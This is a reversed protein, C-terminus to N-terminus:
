FFFRIGLRIARPAVLSYVQHGDSSPYESLDEYWDYETRDGWNTITDSNFVNFIDIMLGLRYKEKFTFTKELRLDLDTVDPLRRSGAPETFITERGQDLRFRARREYTRGTRHSFYANFHIDWPLIYSGQLKVFHTPDNYAHGFRNIWFNPNWTQGGWGIDDGWGNGITGTCESYVYSAILQWRHSFRKTFLVEIGWYDRYADDAIWPDGKKINALVYQREGVNTQNFVDIPAGTFPDEVAIQEYQGLIDYTNLISRWKRNIYSIGLSADKFLEREIGVTWQDMYPHSYTDALITQYYPWRAWEEWEGDILEFGIFDSFSEPPNMRDCVATYMADTFRGFHGKLVTTHDGFIDWAFGARFGPRDTSYVSGSKGKVYGRMFSWRLGLNITLNDSISWADQLFWENRIYTTNVDYGEYQYAYLYGYWDYIYVSPGIGEVYGPYGLRSRAWGREFETGFKFDHDGAIFDEAYNSISANAQFRTRDAKYWYYSNDYWRNDEASWVPTADGGQPDLYYYGWFYAGKVNFFTTPNLVATLDLNVVWEPSTQKVGTEPVPNTVGTNRNIGNYQDLEFWATLNLKSSLQSTLKLFFRPQKYDRWNPEQLGTPRSKSRYYQLGLFFWHQDKKIPGGLHLSSDWLGQLPSTLDPNEEIYTQNNDTTWFGNKNTSQFIIEAHGSFENGGSKTITNFIVGSFAGYEANLGIGMVKAEEIANYDMFVWATGGEPDGVGVGDIQYSIGSSTGGFAVNGDVGPALNVLDTVFQATPMGRLIEDSLTVSATESTKVDVTPSEAVVTVEEEITSTKMTLDVTLRITTHLRINERIVTAFGPLEAKVTYVGPPLAPFRYKGDADTIATKVGMIDPSSLTTTVGPLPTGEDDVITGVIGGTEKSQSFALPSLILLFVLLSVLSKFKM